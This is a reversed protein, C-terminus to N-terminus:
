TRSLLGRAPSDVLHGPGIALKLNPRPVPVVLELDIFGLKGTSSDPCPPLETPLAERLYSQVWLCSIM